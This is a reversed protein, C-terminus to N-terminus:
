NILVISKSDKLILVEFPFILLPYFQRYSLEASPELNTTLILQSKKKNECKICLTSELLGFSDCCFNLVTKSLDFDEIYRESSGLPVIGKEFIFNEIFLTLGM